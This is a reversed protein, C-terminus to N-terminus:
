TFQRLHDAFNSLFPLVFGWELLLKGANGPTPGLPPAVNYKGVRWASEESEGERRYGWSVGKM